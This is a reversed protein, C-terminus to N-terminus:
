GGVWGMDTRSGSMSVGHRDTVQLAALEAASGGAGALASQANDLAAGLEAQPFLDTIAGRFM